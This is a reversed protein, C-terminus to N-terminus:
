PLYPFQDDDDDGSSSSGSSDFSFELKPTPNCRIWKFVYEKARRRNLGKPALRIIREMTDPHIENYGRMHYCPEDLIKMGAKGDLYDGIFSEWTSIDTFRLIARPLVRSFHTVQHEIYRTRPVEKSSYTTHGYMRGVWVLIEMNPKLKYPLWVLEMPSRSVRFEVDVRGTYIKRIALSRYRYTNNLSSATTVRLEYHVDRFYKMKRCCAKYADKCDVLAFRIIRIWLEKYPSDDLRPLNLPREYPILIKKQASAPSGDKARKRKKPNEALM